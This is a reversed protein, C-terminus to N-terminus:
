LLGRQPALDEVRPGSRSRKERITSVLDPSKVARPIQPEYEASPFKAFLEDTADGFARNLTLRCDLCFDSEPQVPQKGCRVCVTTAPRADASPLTQESAAADRIAAIVPHIPGSSKLRRAGSSPTVAPDLATHEAECSACLVATGRPGFLRGCEPCRPLSDGMTDVLRRQM